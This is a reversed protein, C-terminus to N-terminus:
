EVEKETAMSEDSTFRKPKEETVSYSNNKVYNVIDKYLDLDDVKMNDYDMLKSLDIQTM